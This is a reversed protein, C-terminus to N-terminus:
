RLIKAPYFKPSKAFCIGNVLIKDLWIECESYYSITATTFEGVNEEDFSMFRDIRWLKVRGANQAIRYMYWLEEIEYDCCKTTSPFLIFHLLEVM